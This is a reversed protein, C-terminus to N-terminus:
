RSDRERSSLRNFIDELCLVRKIYQMIGSLADHQWCIMWTANFNPHHKLDGFVGSSKLKFEFNVDVWQGGITEIGRADLIKTHNYNNLYSLSILPGRGRRLAMPRSTKNM